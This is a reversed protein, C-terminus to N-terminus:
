YKQNQINRNIYSSLLYPMIGFSLAFDHWYMSINKKSLVRDNNSSNFGYNAWDMGIIPHPYVASRTDWIWAGTYEGTVENFIDFENSYFKKFYSFARINADQEVPNNYHYSTSKSGASPIGVKMFYWPGYDQSQLYHGYEHQFLENGNEAKIENGGSIFSGLTVAGWNGKKTSVVTAGHLYEVDTVGGVLHFTNLSQAFMFGAFTQPSQWTFRSILEWAAGFFGKNKDVNFLGGWIRVDNHLAQIAVDMDFGGLLYNIIFSDIGIFEGSEDTYKLPNNLAYAYRNFNQSFDPAQVFPDPSLFRGLVPDYLRANMNILGYNSLHEHGCYGRGLLLTPQSSSAYPTLTQPDRMRGWPDYSYTAVSTGSTTVINTISGLYDRGIVYPTWSGSGSTRQLVMPASYADGGVFLREATVTGSGSEEREYCDGIYYKKQSVNGRVTHVARVRGYDANYTFSCGPIGESIGSPRDYATYTVIQPSSRTVSSSAANLREIRYPHSVNPYTMTGVGSIKTANGKIDYTISGSYAWTLRGLADYSFDETEYPQGYVANFRTNLNGNTQNFSTRLDQLTSGGATLKRKTPFGYATYEYTRSVSGSTASTPQGLDNEGTLVLATTGGSLVLVNNHGNAYSYYETTITGDQTSYAVSSVNGGAGYAYTKQLWKGDPVTEKVTSVRDYADYTYEGGTSNTSAESSLRGYADYTYTTNFAGTGTRTVGTVRGYKDASTAISGLANTETTVSSGDSNDLYSTSRTGASPDVISTRRGYNDYTFSTTVSGPATVSSPQGDDRLTYTISGSADTVSVLDGVANSTKTVTIGDKVETVSTGSYSWQTIRGSAETIKTQRSYNDYKYTNWYSASTGRFPLSIRKILGRENYETDTYQWQGNFRKNGTRIERSLADYHVITSPKGTVTRTATYVGQGGWATATSDVTGDAYVTKTQKGWSDFSNTRVRNRYDTVTRANGYKDFNSYTTTQGLANTSSTLHRGSSDYTYTNGTYETANYPASEETLVNGHLDYTWRSKSTLYYQYNFSAPDGYALVKYDNRTLPHFYSDYTSVSREGQMSTMNGDRNRTVTQSSITGLVYKSPSNSHVYVRQDIEVVPIDSAGIKSSTTIRTPYDFSDYSYSATTIVGTLHDTQVSQIMRPSLKGYTTIHNDYAYDVVKFPIHTAMEPHWSQRTMVGMKQPDYMTVAATEVNDLYSVEIVKSFGCFGLGRTNSVGDYWNYMDQSILESGSGDSLFRRSGTLVYAPLVRLQYGDEVRIDTPADTWYLSTHPLYNYLSRLIKGYSDKSQVLLRQEPSYSTFSHEHINYGDITIFSSMSTYDVVNGPLLFEPCFGPTNASHFSTFSTGDGNLYYGYSTSNVKVADPYGDRNIDIFFYIDGGAKTDLSISDYIFGTGTNTYLAWESGTQPAKLVDIYGDSNIDQFYAGSSAVVDQTLVPYTMVVSFQGNGYRYATLGNPGAFCLETRSDGDIDMCLLKNEDDPTIGPLGQGSYDEYLKSGTSLDILTYGWMQSCHFINYRYSVVLLQAKGNGLFDGWRFTRQNPSYYPQSPISMPMLVSLSDSLSLTGTSMDCTYIKISYTSGLSTTAGCNVKVVEDVGDGDVDVANATLFGAETLIISSSDSDYINPAFCIPYAQDYSCEFIHNAEDIATYTSDTILGLLGDNYSGKVFKGRCYSLNPSYVSFDEPLPTTRSIVLSDPGYHPNAIAEYTFTLPPLYNGDSSSVAVSTLLPTGASWSHRFEYYFATAGDIRSLLNEIRPKRYLKKGAYYQYYQDWTDQWQIVGAPNDLSDFGYRVSTLYCSGDTSDFSYVYEIKDGDLNISEVMPYSLNNSNLNLSTSGYTARVGNPYLVNFYRVYGSANKVPAALIHGSATVLPYDASTASDDNKVLRVGDLMFVASTDAADAAKIKDDYYLSRGTLTIASLGALDWGYGGYGYGGQSNYVLALSPAYKIDPATAIPISYTRAGTHSVGYQLPIAGVDYDNISRSQGEPVKIPALSATKAMMERLYAEKEERTKILVGHKVSDSDDAGNDNKFASVSDVPPVINQLVTDASIGESAMERTLVGRARGTRNGLTDHTFQMYYNQASLSSVAFLLISSILARLKM